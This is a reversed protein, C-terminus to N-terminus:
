PQFGDPDHQHTEHQRFACVLNDYHEIQTTFQQRSLGLVGEVFNNGLKVGIRKLSPLRIHMSTVEHRWWVQRQHPDRVHMTHIQDSLREIFVQIEKGLRTPSAPQGHTRALMPIDRWEDALIELQKNLNLVAPLYEFKM